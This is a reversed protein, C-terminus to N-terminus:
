LLQKLLAEPFCSVVIPLNLRWDTKASRGGVLFRNWQGETAFRLSSLSDCGTSFPYRIILKSACSAIEPANAM